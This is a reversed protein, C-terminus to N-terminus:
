GRRYIIFYWTPASNDFPFEVIPAAPAGGEDLLHLSWAGSDSQPVSLKLNGAKYHRAGSNVTWDGASPETTIQLGSSHFAAVRYGNLPQNNDGTIAVYVDFDLHNTPFSATEQIIFLFSPPAPTDTPSPTPTATPPAQTPTPEPTSTPAATPTDTPSPATTPTDTQTPAPTLTHTPTATSAPTPTLTPMSWRALRPTPSSPVVATKDVTLWLVLGSGAVALAALCFGLLVVAGLIVVLRQRNKQSL